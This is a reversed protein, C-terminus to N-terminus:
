IYKQIQCPIRKRNMSDNMISMLKYFLKHGLTLYYMRIIKIEGSEYEIKKKKISYIHNQIGFCKRIEELFDKNSSCIQPSISVRGNLSTYFRLCGDGDYFGLLFALMLKAEKLVPLFPKKIRKNKSKIFIYEMGLKILDQAMTNNWEIKGVSFRIESYYYIKGDKDIKYDHIYNEDLGIEMCFALIRERDNTKQGFGIRYYYGSNKKDIAIWGDAIMFGLWYAKKISDIRKFYSFNIKPHYINIQSHATLKPKFIEQYFDILNIIENEISILDKILSKNEFKWKTIKERLSYKMKQLKNVAIPKNSYENMRQAPLYHNPFGFFTSMRRFSTSFPKFLLCIKHNTQNKMIERIQNTFWVNIKEDNENPNSIM